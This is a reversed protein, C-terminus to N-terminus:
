WDGERGERKGNGAADIDEVEVEGRGENPTSASIHIYKSKSSSPNSPLNPRFSPAPPPSTYTPVCPDSLLNEPIHPRSTKFRMSSILILSSFQSILFQIEFILLHLSPSQYLLNM